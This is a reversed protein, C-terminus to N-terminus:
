GTWRASTAPGTPSRATPAGRGPTSAPRRCASSRSGASRASGGRTTRRRRARADAAPRRRPALRGRGGVPRAARHLVRGSAGARPDLGAADARGHDRHRHRAALPRVLARGGPPLRDDAGAPRGAALRAGVPRDAGQAPRASGRAPAPDREHLRRGLRRGRVGAGRHPLLGRVGLGAELLRRPASPRALPRHVAAGRAHPSAVHRALARRRDRPRAALANWGLMSAAWQLMDSAVCGGDYHVDDAYRDDTSCLTVIAGLAPPRNAAVQLSNFGSWSIGIMGSRARHVVAAGAIWAIVECADSQEQPCTSTRSSATRSAPAASTSASARRVRPRRPVPLPALRARRHRREPPLAPVRPDGPGPRQEADEPLWIRAALRCGDALEIWATQITRVARPFDTVVRVPRNM